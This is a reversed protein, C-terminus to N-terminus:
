SLRSQFNDASSESNLTEHIRPLYQYHFISDLVVVVFNNYDEVKEVSRLDQDQKRMEIPLDGQRIYNFLFDKERRTLNNKKECVDLVKLIKIEEFIATGLGKILQLSGTGPLM